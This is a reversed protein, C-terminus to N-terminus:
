LEVERMREAGRDVRGTDVDSNMTFWLKPGGGALAPDFSGSAETSINIAHFRLGRIISEDHSDTTMM